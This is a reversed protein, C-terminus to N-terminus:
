VRIRFFGAHVVGGREQLVCHHERNMERPDICRHPNIGLFPPLMSGDKSFPSYQVKIKYLMMTDASLVIM